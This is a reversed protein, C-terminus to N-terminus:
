ALFERMLRVVQEPQEEMVWHGCQAIPDIDLPVAFYKELGTLLGVPLARDHIAWIIRCPRQVKRRQWRLMQPGSKWLSRYWQLSAKHVGPLAFARAYEALDESGFAEKRYALAPLGTHIFRDNQRALISEMLGPVSFPIIYSSRLPNLKHLPANFIVFRDVIEPFRLAIAWLLGGGWDHGAWAAREYGLGRLALRMEESLTGLDYGHEPKDSEGYGKLDFAIVRHTGSLRAVVHRWCYTSQPFGHLLILPPGNGAELYSLRVQGAQVYGRRADM